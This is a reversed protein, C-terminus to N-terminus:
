QDEADECHRGHNGLDDTTGHHIRGGWTPSTWDVPSM